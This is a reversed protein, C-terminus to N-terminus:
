VLLVEPPELHHHLPATVLLMRGKGTYILSRCSELPTTGVVRVRKEPPLLAALGVSMSATERLWIVSILVRFQCPGWEILDLLCTKAEMHLM